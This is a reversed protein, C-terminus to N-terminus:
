YRKNCYYNLTYRPRPGRDMYYYDSQRYLQEHIDSNSVLTNDFLVWRRRFKYKSCSIKNINNINRSRRKIM